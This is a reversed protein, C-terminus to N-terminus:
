AEERAGLNGPNIERQAKSEKDAFGSSHCLLGHSTLHNGHAAPLQSPLQGGQAACLATHTNDVQLMQTKKWINGQITAQQTGQM